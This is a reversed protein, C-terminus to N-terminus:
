NEHLNFSQLEVIFEEVDRAATKADVDFERTLSDILQQKKKGAIIGRFILLGAANASFFKGSMQDIILGSDLSNFRESLKKM